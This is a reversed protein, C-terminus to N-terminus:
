SPRVPTNEPELCGEYKTNHRSHTFRIGKQITKKTRNPFLLDKGKFNNGSTFMHTEQTATQLINWESVANQFANPITCASVNLMCSDGVLRNNVIKWESSTIANKTNETPNTITWTNSYDTIYITDHIIVIMYNNNFLMKSFM